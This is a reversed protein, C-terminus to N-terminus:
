PYNYWALFCEDNKYYVIGYQGFVSVFVFLECLWLEWQEHCITIIVLNLAMISVHRGCGLHINCAVNKVAQLPYPISYLM